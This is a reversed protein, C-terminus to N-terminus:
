FPSDEDSTNDFPSDAEAASGIPVEDFQDDPDGIAAGFPEGDAVKQVNCLGFGIGKNVKTYAYVTYTVHAYCGAYFSTNEAIPQKRQDVVNPKIRGSFRVFIISDDYGDLHDKESGCRFPSKVAKGSKDKQGLPVGFKEISLANVKEHLQKLLAIQKPDTPKKPILLTLGYKKEQGEEMADPHYVADFSVRGIPSLPASMLLREKM